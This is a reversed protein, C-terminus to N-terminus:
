SNNVWGKLSKLSLYQPTPYNDCVNKGLSELRGGVSEIGNCALQPTVRMHDRLDHEWHPHGM